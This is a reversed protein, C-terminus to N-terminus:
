KEGKAKYANRSDEMMRARAAREDNAEPAGDVRGAAIVEQASALSEGGKDARKCASDFRGQVYADHSDAPLDDGDVKKVVAAKIERDSMEPKFDAGLVAAAKTQLNVRAAVLAPLNAAADTRAKRETELDKEAGDARATAAASTALAAALDAEAKDARAKEAGANIKATALEAALQEITMQNAGNDDRTLPPAVMMACDMRVRAEPGARGVEVIAVHNGRINRQVADYRDGAPTVGPTPDLDVEYGCSLAVKGGELKAITAADMVVIRAAVHEGDKRPDGSVHGVAYMKANQANVMEPPHDDTVVVDAFTHLSDAKFVESPPRYERRVSGDTDRYEFVGARTLWGDVRLRGDPLKEPSRLSGVDVRFAM